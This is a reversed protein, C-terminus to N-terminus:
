SNLVIRNFDEDLVLSREAINKAAKNVEDKSPRGRGPSDNKPGLLDLLLKNAAYAMNSTGSATDMVKRFAKSKLKIEKELRWHRLYEDEFWKMKSIELWHDWGGLESNAFEYETPDDYAMYLQYLSPLGEHPERKLTFQVWKRNEPTMM